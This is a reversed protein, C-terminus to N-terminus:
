AAPIYVKSLAVRDKETTRYFDVPLQENAVDRFLEDMERSLAALGKLKEPTNFIARTGDPVQLSKAYTEDNALHKLHRTTEALIALEYIYGQSLASTDAHYMMAAIDYSPLEIKTGEDVADSKVNKCLRIAKKLSGNLEKDRINIKDIHKFPMNEITMPISKDLIRVARDVKLNTRQYAVTDHWHSPVIDVQRPLTGGSIKVAKTGAADVKASPFKEKLTTEVLGRLSILASVPTYNIPNRYGGLQATLGNSDYTHFANDLTLLDVDSYSRIHINCPVSGQLEFAVTRGAASLSAQLQNRVRDATELSIRTYEPGVEQMSGLAYKTNPKNPSRKQYSEETLFHALNVASDAAMYAVRDTGSRRAKLSTLRKNIDRVM